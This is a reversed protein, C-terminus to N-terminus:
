QRYTAHCEVCYQMTKSLAHLSASIDKTQLRHGLDDGSEHFALGLKKFEENDFRKCMERMEPTLGLKTHAIKSADDFKNESMLSIISQIAEVHSRMNALQHQKMRASLGLSIRTDKMNKMKHHHKKMSKHAKGYDAFIINSSIMGILISVTVIVKRM